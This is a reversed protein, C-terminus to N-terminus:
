KCRVGARVTRAPLHWRTKKRLEELPGFGPQLTNMNIKFYYGM